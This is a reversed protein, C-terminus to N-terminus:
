SISVPNQSPGDPFMWSKSSRSIILIKQTGSSILLSPKWSNKTTLTESFLTTFYIFFAFKNRHKFDPRSLVYGSMSTTLLGAATGMITIFITVMYAQPISNGMNFIAKYADLTFERPLLSYGNVAIASESSFSGALILLFPIVCIVALAAIVFMSIGKFLAARFGHRIHVSTQTPRM